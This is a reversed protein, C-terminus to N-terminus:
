SSCSDHTTPMAGQNEKGPSSGHDQIIVRVMDLIPELQCEGKQLCETILEMDITM